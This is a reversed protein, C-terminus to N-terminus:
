CSLRGVPVPAWSAQGYSGLRSHCTGNANMQWLAGARTFAIRAGDSSFVPASGKGLSRTRAGAVLWIGGPGSAVVLGGSRSPASTVAVTSLRRHGPWRDLRHDDVYVITSGQWSPAVSSAGFGLRRAVGGAAPVVLLAADAGARREFAIRTGDPSWAPPASVGEALTAPVGSGDALGTVLLGGDIWALTKSDPAFRPGSAAGDTTLRRATGGAADITWIDGQRVFALHLGDPSWAPESGAGLQHVIGSPGLETLTGDPAVAALTAVLALLVV